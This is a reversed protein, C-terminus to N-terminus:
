LVFKEVLESVLKVVLEAMPIVEQSFFDIYHDQVITINDNLPITESITTLTKNVVELFNEKLTGVDNGNTRVFCLMHYGIREIGELIIDTSIQNETTFAQCQSDKLNQFIANFDPHFLANSFDFYQFSDSLGNQITPVTSDTWDNALKISLDTPLMNSLTELGQDESVSSGLELNVISGTDTDLGFESVKSFDPPNNPGRFYSFALWVSVGILVVVVATLIPHNGVTSQYLNTLFPDKLTSVIFDSDFGQKPLIDLKDELSKVITKVQRLEELVANLQDEHAKKITLLIHEVYAGLALLGLLGAFPNFYNHNAM